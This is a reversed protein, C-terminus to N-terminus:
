LPRVAAQAEPEASAQAAADAAARVAAQVSRALLRDVLAPAFRYARWALRARRPAVILAANRDMGRLAVEAIYDAAVPRGLGTSVAVTRASARPRTPPLDMPNAADLMPTDVWGPCLASVKVGYPAAEGRLALSLGVVASKSTAYMTLGPAPLLGALSAVNLIHGQRRSRMLPYAATVGHIVGWLNVALLRDWHAETIEDAGGGVAIGANNVLLDLRRQDDTRQVLARVAAADRVDLQAAGARGPLARNLEAATQEARAGDLDAVVVYTGRRALAFSLARGIGSAGGTVM